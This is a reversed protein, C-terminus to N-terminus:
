PWVPLEKRRRRMVNLMYTNGESEHYCHAAHLRPKWSVRTQEAPGRLWDALHFSHGPPPAATDQQSSHEATFGHDGRQVTAGSGSSLYRKLHPFVEPHSLAAHTAGDIRRPRRQRESQACIWCSGRVAAVGDGQPQDVSFDWGSFYQETPLSCLIFLQLLHPNTFLLAQFFFFRAFDKPTVEDSPRRRLCNPEYNNLRLVQIARKISLHHLVSGVKLSLLDDQLAFTLCWHDALSSM